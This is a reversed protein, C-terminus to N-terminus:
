PTVDQQLGLARRCLLSLEEAMETMSRTTWGYLRFTAAHVLAGLLAATLPLPDAASIEGAAVAESLMRHILEIPHDDGGPIGAINRHQTLLLFAFLTEDEDHIRCIEHVLGDVRMAIPAGAAAFPAVRAGYAHFGERFLEDILADKSRWHVYLTGPQVGAAVAIDRVAVADVGRAVFLDLAVRRLRGRTASGDRM